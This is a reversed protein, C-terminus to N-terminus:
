CCNPYNAHRKKQDFKGNFSCDRTALHVWNSQDLQSSNHRWPWTRTRLSGKKSNLSCNVNKAAGAPLATAITPCQPAWVWCLTRDAPVLLQKRCITSSCRLSCLFFVVLFVFNFGLQMFEDWNNLITCAIVLLCNTGNLFGTQGNTMFPQTHLDKVFQLVDNNFVWFNLCHSPECKTLGFKKWCFHVTQAHEAISYRCFSQLGFIRETDGGRFVFIMLEKSVQPQHFHHWVWNQVQISKHQSKSLRCTKVTLDGFLLPCFV